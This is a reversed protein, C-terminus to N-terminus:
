RVTKLGAKAEGSDNELRSRFYALLEKRESFALKSFPKVPVAIAQPASEVLFSARKQIINFLNPAPINLIAFAWKLKAILQPDGNKVLFSAREEVKRFFIPARTDLRAFAWATNVIEHPKGSEMLFSARDEIKKLLIPANIRLKAFAWATNAITQPLGSDVLWAADSEVAQMITDVDNGTARMSALAYVINAVQSEGGFKKLEPSSTMARSLNCLLDRFGDSQKMSEGDSGGIRALKGLATAWNVDNFSAHEATYIPLIGRWDDGADNLRKNIDFSRKRDPNTLFSTDEPIAFFQEPVDHNLQSFALVLMGVTQTNGNESLFSAHEEIKKLLIPAPTNLKAFAWATNAIEQPKGNELLFSAREEIKKFLIPATTNLKAFAWATNAIHQPEGSEVLFSSREEIKMFLIPASTNLTAFAWATSAIDLPKGNEVLFSARDEIKKFLIPAPINLKAFAWATNAIAQPMGGEVLWEADREVARMIVDVDDGTAGMKALAHVINAVERVGWFNKLEPSATMERSLKRLLNLFDDSQKM